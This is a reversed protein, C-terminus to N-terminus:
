ARQKLAPVQDTWDPETVSDADTVSVSGCDACAEVAVARKNQLRTECIIREREKDEFHLIDLARDGMSLASEFAESIQYTAGANVLRASHEISSARALIPMLPHEARILEVIKVSAEQDNVAVVVLKATDIGSTELIDYRSMDGYFVPLGKQKAVQICFGDTEVVTVSQGGRLLSDAVVQGFRGYGILIVGDGEMVEADPIDLMSQIAKKPMRDHAFVMLPTVVMSLIITATLTDNTSSDIIGVATATAYLVFAFEGGQAMLVAREAAEPHPQRFSRSVVYIGVMKVAAYAAVSAAILMWNQAIVDLDMTMGVGVFFLGLLLGRFPEIDAELQHRFSSESLLVGALFAGMAMSMGGAQMVLAAGLVIFLTVVTMMERVKTQGILRLLPDLLYRGALILGVITAVGLAINFLSGSTTTAVGVPALLAVVALLPVIAIDELLLISVVRRGKPLHLAKREELMQMVVATSTLVFGTGAVFSPTLSYGLLLGVATLLLICTAVQVLGLGFIEGKMSWLRSPRMELGIVFLFMVVGLEAIHLILKPDSFLGAGFPGTALGVALYGLVAGLGLKKFIPVALMTAGLLTVIPIVDFGHAETM